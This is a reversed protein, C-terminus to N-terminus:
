KITRFFHSIDTINPKLSVCVSIGGFGARLKLRSLIQVGSGSTATLARSATRAKAPGARWVGGHWLGWLVPSSPFRIQLDPVILRSLHEQHLICRLQPGCRGLARKQLSCRAERPLWPGWRLISTCGVGGPGVNRILVEDVEKRASERLIQVSCPAQM